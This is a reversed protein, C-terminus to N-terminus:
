DFLDKPFSEEGKINVKGPRTIVTQQVNRPTSYANEDVITKGPTKDGNLWSDVFAKSSVSVETPWSRCQPHPAYPESGLKYVGAGLNWIDQQNLNRCINTTRNDNVINWKIGINGGNREAALSDSERYALSRQTRLLRAADFSVNKGHLKTRIGVRGPRLLRALRQTMVQSSSAEGSAITENVIRKIEKRATRNTKWIRQSLAKGDALTSTKVTIEFSKEPIGVLVATLPVFVGVGELRKEYKTLIFENNKVGLEAHERMSKLLLAEYEAQFSDSDAQLGVIPSKAEALTGESDLIAKAQNNINRYYKEFLLDLERDQKKEVKLVVDHIKDLGKTFENSGRFGM